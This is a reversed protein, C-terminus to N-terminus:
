DFGTFEEDEIVNVGGDESDSEHGMGMEKRRKSAEKAGRRKNEIRRQVGSKTSIRMKADRSHRAEVGHLKLEKKEKKSTKPLVDLLWKEVSGKGSAAIVNAIGKVYGIDEKTYYTVAKGGQINARGTRGVRHIYSAISTPIDYNVVMRVGRFDMGRSLVDTTILVWIEGLRFRTMTKERVTDTLESHLVAIRGPTPLDYLIENYLAQTRPISQLFILIPPHLSTTFLQRLALLKGSETATYLLQQNITPLSTDKIGIVLRLIAPPKPSALLITTTLSETTSPMTASWLTTRLRSSRDRIATWIGLTQSKFLEDLLIDAEDLVLSHLGTMCSEGASDIAHKLLLPTSVVIDSKICPEKNDEPLVDASSVPRHGKKFQSVKIGTGRSLKKVENVIQGVLEKTPALIVAKIGRKVGLEKRERLLNNLLPVVYALTKGSGTPACTFLDVPTGESVAEVHLERKMLVPLAGM